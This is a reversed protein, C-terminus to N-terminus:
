WRTLLVPKLANGVISPEGMVVKGNPGGWGVVMSPPRLTSPVIAVGFSSGMSVAKVGNLSTTTLLVAYRQNTTNGIGLGGSSNLGWCRVRAAAGTGVVACTASGGVSVSTAGSLFATATIKVPLPTRSFAVLNTGQGLQGSTNGGWCRVAGTSLRACAHATGVSVQTAKANAGDIRWVVTSAFPMDKTVVPNGLQGVNNAGWCRVGGGYMVACTHDRGVSVQLVGRLPQTASVKVAVPRVRDVTTGDGVQGRGNEGWCVLTGSAGANLVACATAEGVSISSVAKLSASTTAMVTQPVPQAAPKSGNGIQGSAGAGWCKVTGAAGPTFLACTFGGGASVAAASPLGTVKTPVSAVGGVTGLGLQGTANSGSCVVSGDALRACTHLRGASVQTPAVPLAVALGPTQVVGSGDAFWTGSVTPCLRLPVNGSADTTGSLVQTCGTRNSSRGNASSLTVAVRPLASGLADTAHVTLPVATNLPQVGTPPATFSLYPYQAVKAITNRTLGVQVPTTSGLGADVLQVTADVGLTPVAYGKMTAVGTLGSTTPLAIQSDWDAEYFQRPGGSLSATVTRSVGGGSSTIAAGPVPRGDPMQVSLTRTVVTPEPLVITINASTAIDVVFADTMAGKGAVTGGTIHFALTGTSMPMASQTGNADTRAATAGVSYSHGEGSWEVKAGVVPLGSATIVRVSGTNFLTPYTGTKVEFEATENSPAGGFATQPVVRFSWYGDGPLLGTATTAAAGVLGIDVWDFGANRSAQLVYGTILSAGPLRAQVVVNVKRGAITPDQPLWPSGAPVGPSAIGNWRGVVESADFVDLGGGNLSPTAPATPELWLEDVGDVPFRDGWCFFGLDSTAVCVGDGSAELRTVTRTSLAGEVRGPTSLFADGSGLGLQGFDNLGWCGVAGDSTLLCQHGFGMAVDAVTAAAFGGLPVVTPDAIWTDASSDNLHNTNDGWCALVNASNWACMSTDGAEIGLLGSGALPGLAVATPTPQVSTGDGNKGWCVIAPQDTIACALFWGVAVDVVNQAALAGGNILVPDVATDTGDGLGNVSASSGWCYLEHLSTVACVYGGSASIHVVNKGTLGGGVAATGTQTHCAVKGTIMLFCQMPFIGAVDSVVDGALAARDAATFTSSEEICNSGPDSTIGGDGTAFVRFAYKTGNTGVFTLGTATPTGDAPLWPGAANVQYEVTHGTVIPDTPADWSLTVTGNGSVACVNTPPPVFAGASVVAPAMASFVMTSFVMAAAMLVRTAKMQPLTVLLGGRMM